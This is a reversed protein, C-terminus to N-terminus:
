QAPCEAIADILEKPVEGKATRAELAQFEALTFRRQIKEIACECAAKSGKQTCSALFNAVVDPPFPHDPGRDCGAVLALLLACLSTTLALTRPM